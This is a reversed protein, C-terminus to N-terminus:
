MKLLFIIFTSFPGTPTALLSDPAVPLAGAVSEGDTTALLPPGALGSGPPGGQGQEGATDATNPPSDHTVSWYCFTFTCQVLTSQRPV